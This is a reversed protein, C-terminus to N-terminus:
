TYKIEARIRNGVIKVLQRPGSGLGLGSGLGSLAISVTKLIDRFLLIDCFLHGPFLLTM